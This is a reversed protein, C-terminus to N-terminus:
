YKALRDFVEDADDNSSDCDSGYDSDGDPHEVLHYVLEVAAGTNYLHLITSFLFLIIMIQHISIELYSKYSTIQLGIAEKEAEVVPLLDDDVQAIEDVNQCAEEAVENGELMAIENAEDADVCWLVSNCVYLM